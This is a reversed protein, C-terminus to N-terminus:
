QSLLIIICVSRAFTYAATRLNLVVVRPNQICALEHLPTTTVAAAGHTKSFVLSRSLSRRQSAPKMVVRAPQKKNQWSFSDSASLCLDRECERGAVVVRGNIECTRTAVLTPVCVCVGGCRAVDVRAITTLV